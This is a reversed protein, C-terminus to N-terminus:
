FELGEQEMLYVFNRFAEMHEQRLKFRRDGIEMDAEESRAIRAFDEFPISKRLVERALVSRGGGSGEVRGEGAGALEMEGLDYQGSDTSFRLARKKDFEPGGQSTSFVVLNVFKPKVIRKEPYSFSLELDVSEYNIKGSLHLSPPKWIEFPGISARTENRKKDYRTEVRTKRKSKQPGAAPYAHGWGVAFFGLTAVATLKMLFTGTMISEKSLPLPSVGRMVRGGLGRSIIVHSTDRTAHMRKNSQTMKLGDGVM